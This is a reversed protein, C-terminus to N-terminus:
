DEEDLHLAFRCRLFTSMESKEDLSAHACSLYEVAAYKYGDMCMHGCMHLYTSKCPVMSGRGLILMAEYM